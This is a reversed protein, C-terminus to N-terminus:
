NGLSLLYYAFPGKIIYSSVKEPQKDTTRNLSECAVPRRTGARVTKRSVDLNGPTCLDKQATPSSSPKWTMTDLSRPRTNEKVYRPKRPIIEPKRPEKLRTSPKTESNGHEGIRTPKYFTKSNEEQENAIPLNDSLGTVFKCNPREKRHVTEPDHGEQWFSWPKRLECSFCETHGFSYYFGARALRQIVDVDLRRDKLWSPFSDLRNQEHKMRERIPVNGSHGTVFKCNPREERHVTEPDHGEQWFSWPKRLECSFCETHGFSYYFGAKVLHQTISVDQYVDLWGPTFSDLRNQEDKMRERIPVNDSQGTVFLCNPREERHVTEPDHGEQWFSWNKGLGCSFCETRNGFIDHCYFGAKALLQAISVDLRYPHLWGPPFSAQRNKEFKMYQQEQERYQKRGEFNQSVVETVEEEVVRRRRTRKFM